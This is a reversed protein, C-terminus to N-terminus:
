TLLFESPMWKFCWSCLKSNTLSSMFFSEQHQDVTRSCIFCLSHPKLSRADFRDQLLEVSRCPPCIWRQVTLCACQSGIFMPQCAACITRSRRTLPPGSRGPLCNRCIPQDCKFCQGLDDSCTLTAQKCRITLAALYEWYVPSVILADNMAACVLRLRCLEARSLCKSLVPLIPACTVVDLFSAPRVDPVVPKCGVGVGANEKDSQPRAGSIM